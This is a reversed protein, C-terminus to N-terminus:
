PLDTGPKRVREASFERRYKWCFGGRLFSMLAETGGRLLAISVVEFRGAALLLALGILQVAATILTTLTTEKVRDIAGLTPWGFLMGPFSFFLVPILARLIPEAAGYKEGGILLLAGKAFFFTVVCGASILPLFWLLIRRILGLDRRRIMEPYVGSTVPTYLSQVATVIQMCVSWYAVDASDIFIGILLTNLAGLATTAMDSVFYVASSKLMKLAGRMGSFRLPIGLRRVRLWVLAVAALSGLVDLVPIWLIDEDGHVFVFTLVTSILKMVVFRLTIVQMQELGRFLFDVLFSSLFVVAFSLLTYAMNTRLLPIAATMGLLVALAAASLLMKAALTDGVVQGIRTPDNRAKVIEKTSSLLFGFDVTLQMYTICSKVYAVVGYCDVSLVRTLYPLTFLPLIMKVINMVYLMTTNRVM